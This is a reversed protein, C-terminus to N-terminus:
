LLSLGVFLWVCVCHLCYYEGAGWAYKEESAVLDPNKCFTEANGTLAMSAGRYNYNWSLQIAGRGFFMQKAPVYGEADGQQAACSCAEPPKSSVQCYEGFIGTAALGNSCTHTAWDYSGSHCPKCYVEGDVVKSDGCMLYERPAKFEDSEHLTNGLFAALESARQYTNGMGFAKESHQSNYILIADCLGSYTYPPSANPAIAHFAEPPLIDDCITYYDTTTSATTEVSLGSPPAPAIRETGDLWCWCLGEVDCPWWSQGSSSCPHCDTDAILQGAAQNGVCTSSPPCGGNNNNCTPSAASISGLKSKDITYPSYSSSSSSSTSTNSSSTTADNDDDNTPIVVVPRPPPPVGVVETKDKKEEGSNGVVVVSVEVPVVVVVPSRTPSLTPSGACEIGGFCHMGNPCEGGEGRPCEVMGGEGGGDGVYTVVDLQLLEGTELNQCHSAAEEYDVGCINRVEIIGGEGYHNVNPPPPIMSLLSAPDVGMGQAVTNIPCLVNPFCTESPLCQSTTSGPLCLRHCNQATFITQGCSSTPFKATVEEEEQIAQQQQQQQFLQQQTEKETEAQDHTPPIAIPRNNNNNSSSPLTITEINMHIDDDLQLILGDHDNYCDANDPFWM